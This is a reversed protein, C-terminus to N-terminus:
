EKKTGGLRLGRFVVVEGPEATEEGGSSVFWGVVRCFGGWPSTLFRRGGSALGACEYLAHLPKGELRRRIAQIDASCLSGGGFM